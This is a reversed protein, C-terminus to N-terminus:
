YKISLYILLNSNFYCGFCYGFCYGLCCGLSFHNNLVMQSRTIKTTCHFHLSPNFSMFLLFSRLPKLTIYPHTLLRYAQFLTDPLLTLEDPLLTLKDLLLTAEDQLPPKLIM